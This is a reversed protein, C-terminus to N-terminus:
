LSYNKEGAYIPVKLWNEPAIFPCAFDESYACWPNYAQNFDLIWKKDALYHRDPDLDIYRGAGYTEEGSTKDRFPVFLKLEYPDSKYAQLIHAEGNITFRFEGWRIFDRIVEKTDKIKLIGKNKHENLELEFYYREDFPFYDLKQFKSRNELPVPSQPYTRFFEDKQRREQEIQTKYQALDM